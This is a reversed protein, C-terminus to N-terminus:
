HNLLARMGVPYCHNNETCSYRFNISHGPSKQFDNCLVVKQVGLYLIQFFKWKKSSDFFHLELKLMHFNDFCRLKSISYKFIVWRFINKVNKRNKPWFHSKAGFIKIYFVQGFMTTHGNLIQSFIYLFRINLNKPWIKHVKATNTFLILWLYVMIKMIKLLPSVIVM